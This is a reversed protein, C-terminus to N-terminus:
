RERERERGCVRMCVCLYNRCLKIRYLTLRRERVCVRVRVCVCVCVCVSGNVCACMYVCNSRCDYCDKTHCLALGCICERERGGGRELCSSAFKCELTNKPLTVCVCVCVCMCVCVCVYVCMCVCVCVCEYPSTTVATVSSTSCSNPAPDCPGGCM